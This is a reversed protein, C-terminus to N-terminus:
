TNDILNKSLYEDLFEKPFRLQRGVRVAKIKGDKVWTHITKRKVNLIEMLEDITYIIQEQKM